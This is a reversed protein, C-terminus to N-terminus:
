STSSSLFLDSLATSACQVSHHSNSYEPLNCNHTEITHVSFPFHKGATYSWKSQGSSSFEGTSLVRKWFDRLSSKLDSLNLAGVEKFNGRGILTRTWFLPPGCWRVPCWLGFVCFKKESKSNFNSTKLCHKQGSSRLDQLLFDKIKWDERQREAAVGIVEKVVHVSMDYIITVRRTLINPLTSSDVMSPARRGRMPARRLHLTM